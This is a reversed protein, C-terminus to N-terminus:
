TYFTYVDVSDWLKTTQSPSPPLPASPSFVNLFIPLSEEESDFQLSFELNFVDLM